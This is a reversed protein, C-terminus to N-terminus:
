GTFCIRASVGPRSRRRWIATAPPWSARTPTSKAHELRHAPFTGDQTVRLLKAQLPPSMEAIEDLFITGGDAEEFRGIRQASRAPSRAKKTASCNAKWCRKRSDRRLQGQGDPGGRAPELRPHRRGRSGQGRRKRRHHARPTESPAILSADRFVAQMLPSRAVVYRRCTTKGADFQLPAANRFAPPRGSPPSCNTWTLRSPSIISRATACRAWPTASTPSLRHRAPRAAHRTGQAGAAVNGPRLARADARRFDDHRIKQARLIELAREGSDALSPKLDRAACFPIWCAASAPTTM